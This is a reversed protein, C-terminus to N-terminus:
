VTLIGLQKKICVGGDDDGYGDTNGDFVHLGGHWETSNISNM